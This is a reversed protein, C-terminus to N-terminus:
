EGQGEYIIARVESWSLEEHVKPGGFSADRFAFEGNKTRNQNVFSRLGAECADKFTLGRSQAIAKVEAFLGDGIEITTKM